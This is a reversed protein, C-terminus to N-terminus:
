FFLVHLDSPLELLSRTVIRHKAAAFPVNILKQIVLKWERAKKKFGAGPVWEPIYKLIPFSNVLFAGPLFVKVIARNVEEYGHIYPDNDVHVELDYTIAILTEGTMSLTASSDPGNRSYLMTVSCASASIFWLTM